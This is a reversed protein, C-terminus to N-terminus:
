GTNADRQDFKSQGLQDGPNHPVKCIDCLASVYDCAVNGMDLVDLVTPISSSWKCGKTVLVVYRIM